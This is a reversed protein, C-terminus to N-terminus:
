RPPTESRNELIFAELDEARVRVARNIRVAPLQGQQMLRYALALSIGLREAVGAADLLPPPRNGQVNSEM